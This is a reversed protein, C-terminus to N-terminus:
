LPKFEKIILSHMLSLPRLGREYKDGEGFQNGKEGKVM